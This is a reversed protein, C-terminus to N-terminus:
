SISGLQRQRGGEGILKRREHVKLRRLKEEKQVRRRGGWGSWRIIKEEGPLESSELGGIVSWDWAIV